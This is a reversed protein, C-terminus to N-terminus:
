SNQPQLVARLWNTILEYHYCVRWCIRNIRTWGVNRDLFHENWSLFIFIKKINIQIKQKWYNNIWKVIHLTDTSTEPRGLGPIPNPITPYTWSTIIENIYIGVIFLLMVILFGLLFFGLICVNKCVYCLRWKKTALM